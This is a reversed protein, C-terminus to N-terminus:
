PGQRKGEDRARMDETKKEGRLQRQSQNVHKNSSIWFTQECLLVCLRVFVHLIRASSLERVCLSLSGPTLLSVASSVSLSQSVSRELADEELGAKVRRGKRQLM